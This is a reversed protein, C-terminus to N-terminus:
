IRKGAAKEAIARQAWELLQQADEAYVDVNWKEWIKETSKFAMGGVAIM